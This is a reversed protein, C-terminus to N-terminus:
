EDCHTFSHVIGVFDYTQTTCRTSLNQVGNERERKEHETQLQNKTPILSVFYMMCISIYNTVFSSSSGGLVMAIVNRRVLPIQYASSCCIFIIIIIVNTIVHVFAINKKTAKSMNDRYEINMWHKQSNLCLIQSTM